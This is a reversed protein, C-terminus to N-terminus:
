PLDEEKLGLRKLALQEDMDLQLLYQLTSTPSIAKKLHQFLIPKRWKLLTVFETSPPTSKKHRLVIAFFDMVQYIGNRNDPVTKLLHLFDDILYQHDSNM